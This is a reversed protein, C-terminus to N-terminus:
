ILEFLKKITRVVADRLHKRSHKKESLKGAVDVLCPLICNPDDAIAEGIEKLFARLAAELEKAHAPPDEPILETVRLGSIEPTLMRGEADYVLGEKQRVWWPELDRMADEASAYIGIDLGEVVFIPPKPLLM